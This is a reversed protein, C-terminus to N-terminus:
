QYEEDFPEDMWDSLPDYTGAELPPEAAREPHLEASLPLDLMRGVIM